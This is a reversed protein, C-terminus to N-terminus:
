PQVARYIQPTQERQLSNALKSSIVIGLPIILWGFLVYPMLSYVMLHNFIHKLTADIQGLILQILVMVIATSTVTLFPVVLGVMLVNIRKYPQCLERGLVRGWTWAWLAAIIMLPLGKHVPMGSFILVVVSIIITSFAFQFAARYCGQMRQYTEQNM